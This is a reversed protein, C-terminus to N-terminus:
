HHSPDASVGPAIPDGLEAVRVGRNRLRRLLVQPDAVAGTGIAGIPAEGGLIAMVVESALVGAAVGPRDLAGLVLTVRETGSTGRMEVRVAGIGGEVPASLTRPLHQALRDRRSLVLRASCRSLDGMRAVAVLPEATDAFYADRGGVPDPFWCLQRGTGARHTVWRGDRWEHAPRRVAALRDAACQPGGVGHRAFHVEEVSDMRMSGYAALLDTLGPSFCAGIVLTTATSTALDDLDLLAHACEYSDVTTVVHRGAALHESAADVQSPQDGTLVVVEVGPTVVGNTACITVMGAGIGDAFVRGLEERRSERSTHLELSVEPNGSVLERTLRGGVIGLGFVAV